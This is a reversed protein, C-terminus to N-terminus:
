AGLTLQVSNSSTGSSLITMEELGGDTSILLVEIM